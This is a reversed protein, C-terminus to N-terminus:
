RRQDARNTRRKGLAELDFPSTPFRNRVQYDRYEVVERWHAVTPRERKYRTETSKTLVQCGLEKHLKWEFEFISWQGYILHVERRLPIADRQPDVFHVIRHRQGPTARIEELRLCEVSDLSVVEM